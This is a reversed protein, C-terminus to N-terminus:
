AANSTVVPSNGSAAPPTSDDGNWADYWAAGGVGAAGGLLLAGALVAATIGGTRRAPATAITSSAPQQYTPLPQTFGIATDEDSAAPPPPTVSWPFGEAANGSPIDNENGEPENQDTM